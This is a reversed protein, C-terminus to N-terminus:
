SSIYRFIDPRIHGKTIEDRIMSHTIIGDRLADDLLDFFFREINKDPHPRYHTPWRGLLRLVWPKPIIGFYRDYQRKRIFDIKLGTKWPQTLRNTTHLMKTQEDLYDLSNWIRPLEQVLPERQLTIFYGYNHTGSRIQQFIEQINWHRLKACDLVMVSTDWGGVKRCAAIPYGNAHVDFLENVDCRAFIDPDIVLTNGEYGMLQPPMFRSLTFSQLDGTRWGQFLPMEDVNMIQVNVSGPVLLNREIAYQALRAGFLQKNNAQIFVTRM